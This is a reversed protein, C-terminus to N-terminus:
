RRPPARPLTPSGPAGCGGCSAWRLALLDMHGLRASGALVRAGPPRYGIAALALTSKGCGSEGALGLIRGPELTFGAEQVVTQWRGGAHPYAVTLGAVELAPAVAPAGTASTVPAVAATGGRTM